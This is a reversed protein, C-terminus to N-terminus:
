FLHNYINTHRKKMWIQITKEIYIILTKYNNGRKISSNSSYLWFIFRVFCCLLSIELLKLLTIPDLTSFVPIRYISIDQSNLTNSMKFVAKLSSPVVSLPHSAGRLGVFSCASLCTVCRDSQSYFEGGTGCWWVCVKQGVSFVEPLLLLCLWSYFVPM